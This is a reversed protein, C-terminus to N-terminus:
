KPSPTATGCARKSPISLGVSAKPRESSPTSSPAAFWRASIKKRAILGLWVGLICAYKRAEM